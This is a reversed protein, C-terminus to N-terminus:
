PLSPQARLNPLNPTNVCKGFSIELKSHTQSTVGDVDLLLQRLRGSSQWPQKEMASERPPFIQPFLATTQIQGTTKPFPLASPALTSITHGAEGPCQSFHSAREQSSPRLQAM